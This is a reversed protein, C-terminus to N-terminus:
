LERGLDPNNGTESDVPGRSHSAADGRAGNLAREAAQDAEREVADSPHGITLDSGPNFARRHQAVHALEHALLHEGDPSRPRYRGEAFAISLGVTYAAAGLTRASGAAESGAHVRVRSFDHGYRPEFFARTEPDLPKGSSRLVEHVIPPASWGRYV